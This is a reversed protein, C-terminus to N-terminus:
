ALGINRVGNPDVLMQYREAANRAFKLLLKKRRAAALRAPEPTRIIEAGYSDAIILGNDDPLLEVPFDPGVAWFYRDAWELYGQWKTDSQFDERSSKCEIVWIESKPGLAIVDVRLGKSPTFETLCAFNYSRMLRCVGRALEQGPSTPKM